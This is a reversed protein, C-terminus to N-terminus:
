GTIDIKKGLATDTIYNEEKEQPKDAADQIKKKQQKADDYANSSNESNERIALSSEDEAPVEQVTTLRKEADLKNHQQQQEAIANLAQNQAEQARGVKEMQSYLTQLDIPQIGM